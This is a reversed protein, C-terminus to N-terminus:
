SFGDEQSCSVHFPDAHSEGVSGTISREKKDSPCIHEFLKDVLQSKGQLKMNQESLHQTM